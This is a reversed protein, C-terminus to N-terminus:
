QWRWYRFIVLVKILVLVLVSAGQKSLEGITFRKISTKPYKDGNYQFYYYNKLPVHKKPAQIDVLQTQLINSSQVQLM